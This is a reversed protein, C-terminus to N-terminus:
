FAFYVFPKAVTSNMFFLSVVLLSATVLLARSNPRFAEARESSSRAFFAVVVGLVVPKVLTMPTLPVAKALVATGVAHGYPLLRRWMRAASALDPSRFAIFAMNVFAFTLVQGLGRPLKRKSKKWVQNVALAAGHMLGFVIYTWGPGHWLGAIGMALLTAITSTRLTAKRFSRLISTYLYNTIFNSLTIHWRQWFEAISRARLPSRFNQPIDYGLLWASGVAMDSYGSFDYYIHLTYAASFAWTEVTSLSGPTSFGADAVIGFTDGFVVKKALGMSFLFLGRSAMEIRAARERPHAFQDAMNKVRVIPGSSVCPFFAVACAHDFLTVPRAIEQYCDVLYMVQTLTFFSIGLPFEWNPLAMRWGLTLTIQGLFFNVYKFSALLAINAVLGAVLWPKRRTGAVLQRVVVGNFLISAALIALHEPRAQAYFFLSAALLWAQAARTGATSVLVAHSVVVVPLFLLVYSFSSFLM